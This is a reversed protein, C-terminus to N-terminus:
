MRRALVWGTHRFYPAKAQRRVALVDMWTGIETSTRGPVIPTTKGNHMHDVFADVCTPLARDVALMALPSKGYTGRHSRLWPQVAAGMYVDYGADQLRRFVAKHDAPTRMARSVEFFPSFEFQIFPVALGQSELATLLSDLIRTDFGQTDIKVFYVNSTLIRGIPITPVVISKPKVGGAVAGAQQQTAAGGGGGGSPAEGDGAAGTAGASPVRDGKVYYAHSDLGALQFHLPETSDSVALNRLTIRRRVAPAERAIEAICANYRHPNPEFAVITYGMRAMHILEGAQYIGIDVITTAAPHGSTNAFAVRDPDGTPEAALAAETQGRGAGLFPNSSTVFEIFDIDIFRSLLWKLHYGDPCGDDYETSQHRLAAGGTDAGHERQQQARSRDSTRDRLAVPEDVAVGGVPCTSSDPGAFLAFFIIAAQVVIVTLAPMPVSSLRM